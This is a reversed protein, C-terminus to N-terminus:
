EMWPLPIPYDSVGPWWQRGQATLTFLHEEQGRTHNRLWYLANEPVDRYVLLTDSATRRGLSQWSRDWYMLEYTDGVRIHNDDNRVQLEVSELRVPEGFDYQVEFGSGGIYSLPDGDELVAVEQDGEVSRARASVYEGDGRLHLAALWVEMSDPRAMRYYRYAGDHTLPLTQPHTSRIEGVTLLTEYTSFDPHNSGQLRLGDVSEQWEIKEVYWEIVYPHNKRLLIASDLAADAAPELFHIRHDQDVTFPYNVPQITGSEDQLGPMFVVHSSINEFLFEEESAESARAVPIWGRNRNFVALFVEQNQVDRGWRNAIRFRNAPKYRGTVDVSFPNLAQHRQFTRRYIKPLSGYRYKLDMNETEPPNVAWLSDRSPFVLWDHGLRPRNGWHPTYDNAAPIGVARFINATYNVVDICLGARLKEYLSAPLRGPYGNDLFLSFEITGLVRDVVEKLSRGSHLEEFVWQYTEFQERRNGFELPEHTVRYPLVYEMFTDVDSRYEEPLRNHAEFALDINEILFDASVHHLDPAVREESYAQPHERRIREMEHHFFEKREEADAIASASEFVPAFVDPRGREVFGHGPMHGILFFAAERKLSDAPSQSYHDIVELLEHRNQEALSLAQQVPAPM